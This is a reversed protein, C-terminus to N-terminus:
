IKDEKKKEPIFPLLIYLVLCTVGTIIFVLWLSRSTDSHELGNIQSQTNNLDQQFHYNDPQVQLLLRLDNKHEKLAIDLYLKTQSLDYLTFIIGGSLAIVLVILFYDKNTIM